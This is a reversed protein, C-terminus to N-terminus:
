TLSTVNLGSDNTSNYETDFARYTWTYNCAPYQVFENFLVEVTDEAYILSHNEFPQDNGQSLLYVRCPNILINIEIDISQAGPPEAVVATITLM